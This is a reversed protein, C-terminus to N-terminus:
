ECGQKKSERCIVMRSHSQQHQISVWVGVIDVGVVDIHPEEHPQPAPNQAPQLLSLDTVRGGALGRSLPGGLALGCPRAGGQSEHLGLQNDM